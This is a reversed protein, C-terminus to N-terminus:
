TRARGPSKSEILKLLAYLTSNYPTQIGLEEGKAVVVGNIADIELPKSKLLDQLTSTRMERSREPERLYNEIISKDIVHGVGRAVTVVEEMTLRILAKTELCEFMEQLTSRTITSVSNFGANWVLKEWLKKQIDRSLSCPINARSFVDSIKRARDSIKGDLEGMIIKGSYYHLIEWRENLESAILVVGGLVKERGVIKGIVDENEVGNQLSLVVTNNGINRMCQLTSAKTDYAKVCMLILDVKGAKEPNEVAHIKLSLDGEHSRIKLGRTKLSELYEGRAVFTVDEGGKVLMGGFYGGVAGTGIVLIKM